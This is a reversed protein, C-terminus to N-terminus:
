ALVFTIELNLDSSDNNSGGGDTAVEILDGHELEYNAVNIGVASSTWGSDVVEIGSTGVYSGAVVCDIEPQNIGSDDTLDRARFRVLYAVGRAWPLGDAMLLDDELLQACAADAWRGPIIIQEQIVRDWLSWEIEDDDAATMPAGALTITGAAYQTVIAYRWTGGTSRYRIARGGVFAAQSTANDTVVFTSDSTRTFSIGTAWGDVGGGGLPMGYLGM